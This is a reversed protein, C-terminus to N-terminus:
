NDRVNLIMFQVIVDDECKVRVLNVTNRKLLMNNNPHSLREIESVNGFFGASIVVGM